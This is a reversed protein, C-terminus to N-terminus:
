KMIINSSSLEKQSNIVVINSSIIDIGAASTLLFTKNFSASFAPAPLRQGIVTISFLFKNRLVKEKTYTGLYCVPWLLLSLKM